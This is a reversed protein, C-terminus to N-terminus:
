RDGNHIVGLNNSIAVAAVVPLRRGALWGIMNGTGIVTIDAM